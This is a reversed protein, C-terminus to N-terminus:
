KRSFDSQEHPFPSPGAQHRCLCEVGSARPSGEGPVRQVWGPLHVRAHALGRGERSCRQAGGVETGASLAGQGGVAQLAAAGNM